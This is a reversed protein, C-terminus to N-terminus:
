LFRHFEQDDPYNIIENFMKRMDGTYAVKDFRWAMLVNPSSNIYNPGKELHDNLSKGNLGKASANFVSRVKITWAPTFVAQLPLYWEPTDHNVKERTSRRRVRTRTVKASRRSSRSSLIKEQLNKWLLDNVGPQHRTSIEWRVGASNCRYEIHAAIKLIAARIVLKCSTTWSNMSVGHLALMFKSLFQNLPEEAKEHQQLFACERHRSKIRTGTPEAKDFAQDLIEGSSYAPGSNFSTNWCMSSDKALKMKLSCPVPPKRSGVLSPTLM